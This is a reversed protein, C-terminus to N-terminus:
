VKRMLWGSWGMVLCRVVMVPLGNWGSNLRKSKKPPRDASEMTHATEAHARERRVLSCEVVVSWSWSMWIISCIVRLGDALFFGVNGVWLLFVGVVVVKVL